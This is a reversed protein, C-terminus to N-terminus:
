RARSGVIEEFAVYSDVERRIGGGDSRVVMRYRPEGCLPCTAESWIVFWGSAHGELYALAQLVEPWTMRAGDPRPLARLESMLRIPPALPSAHPAFGAQEGAAFESLRTIGLWTDRAHDRLCVTWHTWPKQSCATLVTLRGDYRALRHFLLRLDGYSM